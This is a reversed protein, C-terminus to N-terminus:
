RLDRPVIGYAILGGVVAACTSWTRALWPDLAVWWDLLADFREVGMLPTLLGVAFTAAGLTRFALPARSQPAAAFLAAGLVLRVLAAVLLGFPGHFATALAALWSPVVAGITGIVLTLTGLTFAIFAMDRTALPAPSM